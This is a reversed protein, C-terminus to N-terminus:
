HGVHRALRRWIPRDTTFDDLWNHVARRGWVSQLFAVALGPQQSLQEVLLGAASATDGDTEDLAEESLYALRQQEQETMDTM